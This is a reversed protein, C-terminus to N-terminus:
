IDKFRQEMIENFANLKWNRKTPKFINQFIFKLEPCSLGHKKFLDIIQIFNSSFYDVFNKNHPHPPEIICILHWKGKYFFIKNNADTRNRWFRYDCDAIEMVLTSIEKFFQNLKFSNEELMQQLKKGKVNKEIIALNKEKLLVMSDFHYNPNDEFSLHLKSTCKYKKTEHELRRSYVIMDFDIFDNDLVIKIAVDNESNNKGHLIISNEQNELVKVIDLIERFIVLKILTEKYYNYYIPIEDVKKLVSMREEDIFSRMCELNLNGRKNRKNLTIFYDFLFEENSSNSHM